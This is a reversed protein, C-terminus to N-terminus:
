SPSDSHVITEHIGRGQERVQDMTPAQLASVLITVNVPPRLVEAWAPSMMPKPRRNAWEIM